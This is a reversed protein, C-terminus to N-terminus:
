ITQLLYKINMVSVLFLEDWFMSSGMCWYRWLQFLHSLESEWYYCAVSDYPNPLPMARNGLLSLLKEDWCDMVPVYMGGGTKYREARDPAAALATNLVQTFIPSMASNNNCLGCQSASSVQFSHALDRLKKRTHVSDYKWIKYSPSSCRSTFTSGTTHVVTKTLLELMQGTSRDRHVHFVAWRTLHWVLKQLWFEHMRSCYKFSTTRTTVFYKFNPSCPKWLPCKVSLTTTRTGIYLCQFSYRSCDIPRM